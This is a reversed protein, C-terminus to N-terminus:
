TVEKHIVYGANQLSEALMHRITHHSINRLAECHQCFGLVLSLTEFEKHCHRCRNGDEPKKWTSSANGSRQMDDQHPTKGNQAPYNMITRFGSTPLHLNKICPPSINM